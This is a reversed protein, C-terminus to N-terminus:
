NLLIYCIFSSSTADAVRWHTSNKLAMYVTNRMENTMDHGQIDSLKQVRKKHLEIAYMKDVATIKTFVVPFHKYIDNLRSLAPTNTFYKAHTTDFIMRIICIFETDKSPEVVWKDCKYLASLLSHLCAAKKATNHRWAIGHREAGDEDPGLAIVNVSFNTWISKRTTLIPINEIDETDVLVDGWANAGHSLELFLPDNLFCHTTDPM